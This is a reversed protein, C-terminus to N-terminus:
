ITVPPCPPQDTGPSATVNFSDVTMRALSVRVFPEKAGSAKAELAEAKAEFAEAAAAAKAATAEEEKMASKLAEWIERSMVLELEGGSGVALRVLAHSQPTDAM